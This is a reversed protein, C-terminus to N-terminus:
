REEGPEEQQFPSILSEIWDAVKDMGEGTESSCPFVPIEPAINLKEKISQIQKNYQGRSIKDAKTAIVLYPLGCEQLWEQMTVDDQTPAHRIDVLQIIGVLPKRQYLYRNIFRAWRAQTARAVRAFGYGPLDVFYWAGNVHYFNITQTKGPTSSTKALNRRNLFKNLFSSKGVNSRGVLAIEPQETQPYQQPNVASVVFAASRIQM